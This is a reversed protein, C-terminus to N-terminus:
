GGTNEGASYAWLFTGQSFGEPRGTTKGGRMGATPWLEELLALLAFSYGAPYGQIAGALFSFQRESAQMWHTEGTLRALRSLVLAAVSNGSPM